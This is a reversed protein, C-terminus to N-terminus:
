KSFYRLHIEHDIIKFNCLMHLKSSGLNQTSFSNNIIVEFGEQFFAKCTESFLSKGINMKQFNPHIAASQTYVRKNKIDVIFQIFGGIHENIKVVYIRHNDKKFISQTRLSNRKSVLKKNILPDISFSSYDSVASAIDLIESFDNSNALCIKFKTNKIEKFEDKYCEAICYTSVFKFGISELIRIVHINEKGRFTCIKIENEVLYTKFESFPLLETTNDINEVLRLEGVKYGFVPLEYEPTTLKFRLNDEYFNM